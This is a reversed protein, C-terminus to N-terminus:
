VQKCDINAVFFIRNAGSHVPTLKCGTYGKHYTIKPSNAKRRTPIFITIPEQKFYVERSPIYKCSSKHVAYLLIPLFRVLCPVQEQLVVGSEQFQANPIGALTDNIMRGLTGLAILLM